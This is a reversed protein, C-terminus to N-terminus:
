ERGRSDPQRRIGDALLNMLEALAGRGDVSGVRVPVGRRREIRIAPRGALRDRRDRDVEVDALEDFAITRRSEQGRRSTGQLRLLREGVDLRGAYLPGDNERWIVAYSSM